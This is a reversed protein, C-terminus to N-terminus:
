DKEEDLDVEIEEDGYKDLYDSKCYDEKKTDLPCGVCFNEGNYKDCIKAVQQLNLDKVKKKM